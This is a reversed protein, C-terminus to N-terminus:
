AIKEYMYATLMKGYTTNVLILRCGLALLIISFLFIVFILLFWWDRAADDEPLVSHNGAQQYQGSDVHASATSSNALRCRVNHTTNCRNVAISSSNCTDCQTCITERKDNYSGAPCPECVTGTTESCNTKVRYGKGCKPCCESGVAYEDQKCAPAASRSALVAAWIVSLLLM